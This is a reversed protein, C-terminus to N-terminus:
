REKAIKEWEKGASDDASVYSCKHYDKCKGCSVSFCLVLTAPGEGVEKRSVVKETKPQWICQGPHWQVTVTCHTALSRSSAKQEMVVLLPGQCTPCVM